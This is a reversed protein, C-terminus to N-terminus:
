KSIEKLKNQYAKHAETECEFHGLVKKNSNIVIASTWKGLSNNWYVGTYKSTGNKKDKSLNERNSIIQLNDLRNNLPNNDIHDVVLKHGNPIHSLFAMAVLQHVNFTKLKANYCLNTAKYGKRLKLSLILGKINRGRSNVRDLSRVNGLNSVQYLGEYNPIDKYIEEMRCVYSSNNLGGFM